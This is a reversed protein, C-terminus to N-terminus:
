PSIAIFSVSLFCLLRNFFLKCNQLLALGLPLPSSFPFPSVKSQTFARESPRSNVIFPINGSFGVFPFPILSNVGLYISWLNVIARAFTFAPLSYSFKSFSM